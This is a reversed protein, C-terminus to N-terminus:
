ADENVSEITLDEAQVDVVVPNRSTTRFKSIEYTFYGYEEVENEAEDHFLLYAKDADINFEPRVHENHEDAM